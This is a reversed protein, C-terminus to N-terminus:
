ANSEEEILNHQYVVNSRYGQHKGYRGSSKATHSTIKRPECKCDKGTHLGILSQGFPPIHKEM